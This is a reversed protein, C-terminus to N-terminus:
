VSETHFLRTEWINFALGRAFCRTSRTKMPILQLKRVCLSPTFFDREPAANYPCDAPQRIPAGPRGCPGGRCPPKKVAEIGKRTVFGM